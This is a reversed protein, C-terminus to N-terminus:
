REEKQRERWARQRCTKSCYKRDPREWRVGKRHFPLGCLECAAVRVRRLYLDLIGVMAREELTPPETMEWGAQPWMGTDSIEWSSDVSWSLRAPILVPRNDDLGWDPVFLAETVTKMASLFRNLAREADESGPDIEGSVARSITEYAAYTARVALLAKRYEDPRQEDPPRYSILAPQRKPRDVTYTSRGNLGWRNAMRVLGTINEPFSARVGYGSLQFAVDVDDLPVPQLGGSGRILPGKIADTVLEYREFKLWHGAMWGWAQPAYVAEIWSKM